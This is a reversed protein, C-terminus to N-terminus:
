PSSAQAIYRERTVVLDVPGTGRVRVVRLDGTLETVRLGAGRKRPPRPRDDSLAPPRTEVVDGIDIGAARLRARAEELPLGIVDPAPAM